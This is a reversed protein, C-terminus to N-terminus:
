SRARCGKGEGKEEEGASRASWYASGEDDMVRELREVLARYAEADDLDRYPGAATLYLRRERKMAESALRYTKWTGDLDWIREVGKALVVLAGLLATVAASWHVPLDPEGPPPPAWLQVVATAAGALVITVGLRQTWRKNRVAREDYWREQGGFLDDREFLEEACRARDSRDPPANESGM